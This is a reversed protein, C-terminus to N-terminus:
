QRDVKLATKPAALDLVAKAAVPGVASKYRLDTLQVKAGRWLVKGRVDELEDSGVKLKGVVFDGDMRRATVWEPVKAKGFALTRSLFSRKHQLLPEFLAEIEPITATASNVKFQSQKGDERYEGNWRLTGAHADQALFRLREPAIDLVGAHIVIPTALDRVKAQMNKVEIRGQWSQDEVLEQPLLLTGSWSGNKWSSLWPVAPVSCL